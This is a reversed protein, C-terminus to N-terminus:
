LTYFIIIGNVKERNVMILVFKRNCVGFVECDLWYSLHSIDMDLENICIGLM